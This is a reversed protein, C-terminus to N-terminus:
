CMCNDELNAIQSRIPRALRDFHITVTFSDVWGQGDGSITGDALIWQSFGGRGDGENLPRAARSERPAEGGPGGSLIADFMLGGLNESGFITYVEM